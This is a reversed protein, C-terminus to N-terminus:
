SKKDVWTISSDVHPILIKRLDRIRLEIQYKRRHGDLSDLYFVEPNNKALSFLGRRYLSFKHGHRNIFEVIVDKDNCEWERIKKIKKSIGGHLKLPIYTQCPPIEYEM